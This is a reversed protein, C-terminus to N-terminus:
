IFNKLFMNILLYFNVFKVCFVSMIYVKSTVGTREPINNTKWQNIAQRQQDLCQKMIIGCTKCISLPKDQPTYLKINKSLKCAGCGKPLYPHKPPFVKGTKGPNIRFIKQKPM